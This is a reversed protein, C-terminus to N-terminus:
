RNERGQINLVLAAKLLATQTKGDTILGNLVGSVLEMLPVRCVDLFEDFDLSQAGASLGTALYLSIREDSYAPSPYYDGLPLWNEATLGTEERLERKAAELRDEDPSDLKGAPIETVIGGLPYRFQREMIVSGDEAIPVIAVAGQHRIYERHASGGNPLTVDDRRVHLLTGDFVSESRVTTEALRSLEEPDEKM